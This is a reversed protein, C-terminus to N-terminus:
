EVELFTNNMIKQIEEKQMSGKVVYYVENQDVWAYLYSNEITDHICQYEFGNENVGVELTINESSYQPSRNDISVELIIYENDSNEYRFYISVDNGEELVKTFGDPMYHICEETFMNIDVTCISDENGENVFYTEDWEKIGFRSINASLGIVGTTLLTGAAVVGIIAAIKKVTCVKKQPTYTEFLNAMKAEFEPSFTHMEANQMEEQVEKEKVEMVAKMASAMKRRLKPNQYIPDDWWSEGDDKLYKKRQM